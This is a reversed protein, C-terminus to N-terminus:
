AVDFTIEHLGTAGDPVVGQEKSTQVEGDAGTARVRATHTGPTADPWEYHWQVWTDDSIATALTAPRWEGDDLQVEVADIGVHQHWAVGALVATGAEVPQGGRPVDIRSSLKIPGRASWGRDTWYANVADFRTVELEVVWKTASVYGYLGPVVMRVPFGHEIPLPEGNMGVALIAARDDQLVELPTSATFGDASRSLVMDADALPRARALLERIPHGLWVANGILSGGVENSVCALTTISEDLPLALLEDWTLEVEREVMGHIRLRWEAPDVLPVALATDIRYFEANPTIVPALGDIGLEAGAPVSATTAPAPLRIADRVATLARGGARLASGAVAALVGIAAAGGAWVLFGRRTAGTAPEGATDAGAGAGSDDRDAADGDASARAGAPADAGRRRWRGILLRLAAVAAVGAVLSPAMALMAANARTVAALAGAVGFLGLVVQGWPPRRSELVGAAASAILLVLGIGILLAPKDGTGFLAIATDKAWPPALDILAAGIVVFPSSEPAIIAATLEGLGAGFVAAGVGAAAPLMWQGTRSRAESM